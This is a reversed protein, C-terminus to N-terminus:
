NEKQFDTNRDQRCDVVMQARQSIWFQEEIQFETESSIISLAKWWLPQDFTLVPTTKNRKAEACIYHLTSYIGTNDSPNMDIMPMFLVSSQGPFSGEHVMHMVGYWSPRHPRLFWCAQWLLHLELTLDHILTTKLEEFKVKLLGKCEERYYKIDIKAKETIGEVKMDTRRKVVLKSSVALTVAYIIGMGHFTKLGDLTATNHDMNDAMYQTFHGESLCGTRNESVAASMEFTLVENYSLSFTFGLSYLTDILFKSDFCYYMQVALGLQFPCILIRLRAAQMIVQGILAAKMEADKGSFVTTLLLQLSAPVLDM